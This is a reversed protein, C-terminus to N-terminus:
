DSGLFDLVEDLHQDYDSLVHDREPLPNIRAGPYHGSMEKWDLVEDGKSIDALYREPRTIHHM